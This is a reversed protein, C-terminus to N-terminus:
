DIRDLSPDRIFICLSQLTVKPMLAPLLLDVSLFREGRREQNHIEAANAAM